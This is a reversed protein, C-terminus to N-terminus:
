RHPIGYCLICLTISFYLFFITIALFVKPFIFVMNVFLFMVMFVLILASLAYTQDTRKYPHSYQVNFLSASLLSSAASSHDRRPVNLVDHVSFFRVCLNHFLGHIFSQQYSDYSLCIFTKLCMQLFFQISFCISHPLTSPCLLLPRCLILYM